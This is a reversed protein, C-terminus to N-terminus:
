PGAVPPLGPARARCLRLSRPAPAGGGRGPPGAGPLPIGPPTPGPLAQPRLVIVRGTGGAMVAVITGAELANVMFPYTFLQRFDDLLNWSLGQFVAADLM